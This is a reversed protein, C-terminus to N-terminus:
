AIQSARFLLLGAALLCISAFSTHLNLAPYRAALRRGLLLGPIAGAAFPLAIPWLLSGHIGAALIGGLAVLTMVGLSTALIHRPPLDSFWTLAPVIVFGGGVGLLGSLLGSVAGTLSLVLACPRTWRLRGTDSQKRCPFKHNLEIDSTAAPRGQRYMRRATWLLLLSFIILLLRDPLQQALHIGVPTLLLGIGGILLAARYRLKGQRWGLLAGLGASLFVAFLGVPGAQTMPLNLGTVLLPVGLIGGGAGSLALILGVILGFALPLLTPGLLEPM